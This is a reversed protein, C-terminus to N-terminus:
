LKVLTLDLAPGDACILTQADKTQMTCTVRAWAAPCPRAFSASYIIRPFTAAFSASCRCFVTSAIRENDQAVAVFVQDALGVTTVRSPLQFDTSDPEVKVEGLVVELEPPLHETKYETASGLLVMTVAINNGLLWPITMLLPTPPTYYAM